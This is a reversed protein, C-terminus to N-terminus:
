EDLMMKWYEWRNSLDVSDIVTFLLPGQLLHLYRANMKYRVHKVLVPPIYCSFSAPVTENCLPICNFINKESANFTCIEKLFEENCLSSLSPLTGRSLNLVTQGENSLAFAVFLSAAPASDTDKRIGFCDTGVATSSLLRTDSTGPFPAVDWNIGKEEYERVISGLESLLSTRFVPTRTEVADRIDRPVHMSWKMGYSADYVPLIAGIYHASSIKALEDSSNYRRINVSCNETDAWAKIGCTAGPRFLSLFVPENRVDIQAGALSLDAEAIQLCVAYFEDFNWKRGIEYGPLVRDTTDKDYVLLLPDCNTGIAYQKGGVTSSEFVGTYVSERVGTDAILSDLCMLTQDVYAYEFAESGPFFVVDAYDSSGKQSKLADAANKVVTITVTVGPNTKRFAETFRELADIDNQQYSEPIGLVINGNIPEQALGNSQSDGERANFLSSISFTGESDYLSRCSSLSFLMAFVLVVTISRIISKFGHKYHNM